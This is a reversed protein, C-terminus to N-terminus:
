IRDKREPAEGTESSSGFASITGIDQGSLQTLFQPLSVGFYLKANQTLSHYRTLELYEPTLKLKNAEAERDASYFKADAAAREKALHTLDEIESMKRLSEKENIKQEFQIKAVQAQKEAEIIARKRETEAEKEVM